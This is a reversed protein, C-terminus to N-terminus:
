RDFLVVIMRYRLDGIYRCLELLQSELKELNGQLYNRASGYPRIMGPGLEIPVDFICDRDAALDVDAVAPDDELRTYGKEEILARVRGDYPLYRMTYPCMIQTASLRMKYSMKASTPCHFMLNYFRLNAHQRALELECLQSYHGLAGSKCTLTDWFFYVSVLSNPCFLLACCGVLVGDIRYTMHAMGQGFPHDGPRAAIRIIPSNCYNKRFIREEVEKDGHVVEQYQRYLAFKEESYTAEEVAVVLQRPAAAREASRKRRKDGEPVAKKDPGRLRDERFVLYGSPDHQPTAYEAVLWHKVVETAILAATIKGEGLSRYSHALAALPVAYHERSNMPRRVPVKQPMGAAPLEASRALAALVGEALARQVVDEERKPEGEVEEDEKPRAGRALFNAMKRRTKANAESEAFRAVDVRITYLACCSKEGLPRYAWTGSVGFGLGLLEEYDEPRCRLLTFAFNSSCQEGKCYGCKACVYSGYLKIASTEEPAHPLPVEARAPAPRRVEEAAVGNDALLMSIADELSGAFALTGRALTEEFGMGLLVALHEDDDM